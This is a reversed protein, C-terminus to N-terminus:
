GIRLLLGLLFAIMSIISFTNSGQPELLPGHLFGMLVVVGIIYIAKKMIDETLLRSAVNLRILAEVTAYFNPSPIFTDM